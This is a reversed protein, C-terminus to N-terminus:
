QKGKKFHGWRGGQNSVEENRSDEFFNGSSSGLWRVAFGFVLMMASLGFVPTLVSRVNSSFWPCVQTEESHLMGAIIPINACSDSDSFLSFIPTFPNLVQFTFMNKLSEFWNIGDSEVQPLSTQKASGPAQDINTGYVSQDGWEDGDPPVSSDGDTIIISSDYILNHLKTNSNLYSFDVSLKFFQLVDPDVDSQYLTFPCDYRLYWVSYEDSPDDRGIDISCTGRPGSTSSGDSELIDVYAFVETESSLGPLLSPESLDDYDFDLVFEGQLEFLTSTSLNEFVSRSPTGLPINIGFIKNPYGTQYGFVSSLSFKTEAHFGDDTNIDHAYFGSWAVRNDLNYLCFPPNWSSPFVQGNSFGDFGFGVVYGDNSSDFSQSYYQPLSIQKPYDCPRTSADAPYNLYKLPTKSTYDAPNLDSSHLVSFTEYNPGGNSNLRPYNLPLVSIDYKYANVDSCVNLSLGVMISFLFLLGFCLKNGKM